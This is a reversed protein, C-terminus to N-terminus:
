EGITYEDTQGWATLYVTDRAIEIQIQNMTARYTLWATALVTATVLAITLIIRVIPNREKAFCNLFPCLFLARSKLCSAFLIM